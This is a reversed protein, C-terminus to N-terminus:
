HKAEENDSSVEQSLERKRRYYTAGLEWSRALQMRRQFEQWQQADNLLQFLVDEAKAEGNKDVAVAGEGSRKKGCGTFANCFPRKSKGEFREGTQQLARSHAPTSLLCLLLTTLVAFMLVESFSSMRFSFTPKQKNTPQHVARSGHDGTETGM